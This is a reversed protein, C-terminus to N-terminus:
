IPGDSARMVVDLSVTKRSVRVRGDVKLADERSGFAAVFPNRIVSGLWCLAPKGRRLFRFRSHSRYQPRYHQCRMRSPFSSRFCYAVNLIRLLAFRAPTGCVNSVVSRAPIIYVASALLRKRDSSTPVVALM